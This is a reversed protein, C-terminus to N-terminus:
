TQGEVQGERNSGPNSRPCCAKSAPQRVQRAAESQRLQERLAAMEDANAEALLRSGDALHGASLAEIAAETSRLAAALGAAEDSKAALEVDRRKLEEELRRAEASSAAPPPLEPQAAPLELLLDIIARAQPPFSGSQATAAARPLPQDFARSM